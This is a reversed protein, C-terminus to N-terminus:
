QWIEQLYKMLRDLMAALKGDNQEPLQAQGATETMNQAPQVEEPMEPMAEVPNFEGMMEAPELGAEKLAAFLNDRAEMVATRQAEIEEESADVGSEMATKEATEAATLTDLLTQLSARTDADEVSDIIAQLNGADPAMHMGERGPAMPAMGAPMENGSPMMNEAPMMEGNFETMEPPMMGQRDEEFTMERGPERMPPQEEPRSVEASTQPDGMVPPENDSFANVYTSMSGALLGSIMVAAAHKAIRNKM